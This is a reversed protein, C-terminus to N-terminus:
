LIPIGAIDREGYENRTVSGGHLKRTVMAGTGYAAVATGIRRRRTVPNDALFYDKPSIYHDVISDSLSSLDSEKLMGSKKLASGISSKDFVKSRYEEYLLTEPDSSMAINQAIFEQDAAYKNNAQKLFNTFKVNDGGTIYEDVIGAQEIASEMNGSEISNRMKVFADMKNVDNKNVRTYNDVRSKLADADIDLTVNRKLRNVLHQQREDSTVKLSDFFENVMEKTSGDKAKKAVKMIEDKGTKLFSATKDVITDAYGQLGM